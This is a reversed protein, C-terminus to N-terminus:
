GYAARLRGASPRPLCYPTMRHAVRAYVVHRPLNPVTNQLKPRVVRTKDKLDHAVKCMATGEGRLLHIVEDDAEPSRSALGVLEQPLHRLPIRAVLDDPSHPQRQVIMRM